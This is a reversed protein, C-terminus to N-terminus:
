LGREARRRTVADHGATFSIVDLAVAAPHREALNEVNVAPAPM